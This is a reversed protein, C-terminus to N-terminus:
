DGLGFPITKRIDKRTLLMISSISDYMLQQGQASKSVASKKVWWNFWVMYNALYKTAVGCKPKMWLKLRSHISSMNNIHYIGKKNLIGSLSVFTELQEEIDENLKELEEKSLSNIAKKLERIDM